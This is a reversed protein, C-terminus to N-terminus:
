RGLLRALLLLLGLGEPGRKFVFLCFGWVESRHFYVPSDLSFRSLTLISSPPPPTGSRAPFGLSEWGRKM